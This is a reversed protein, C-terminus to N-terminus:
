HDHVKKASGDGNGFARILDYYLMLTELHADIAIREDTAHINVARGARVPEFQYIAKSLNWYFRTDTNGPMIDGSVVITKGVLSPVSEFVSRIVCIPAIIRTARFKVFDPTQHMAIRYNVLASIHEPLNNTKSGGNFIDAAQSTQLLFRFDAGRSSALKEAASVYNTSQLAGALWPEVYNPSYKMQCELRQRSPHRKDLLPMFLNERELAYIIASMIGIGTRRPFPVTDVIDDRGKNNTLNEIGVGGEDLIFEFSDHGYEDQLVSSISNAGLFGQIEEDFGFALIITRTPHWNQDLLDEIVSLIAILLNKCDSAGRGWLWEGDFHGAFPPYTWDSCHDIPVVDQHAAFLLPKLNPDSGKLTFLLGLGNVHNVTAKSYTLPFLSQLLGHFDLFPVFREDYPDNMESEIVAPIQVAKSLRDVQRGRIAQDQVFKPSPHLGDEPIEVKPALPCIKTNDHWFNLIQQLPPITPFIVSALAILLGWGALFLIKSLMDHFIPHCASENPEAYFLPALSTLNFITFTGNVVETTMSKYGWAVRSCDLDRGILGLTWTGGIYISVQSDTVNAKRQAHQKAPGIFRVTLILVNETLRM